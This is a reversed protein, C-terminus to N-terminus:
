ACANDRLRKDCLYQLGRSRASGKGAKGVESCNLKEQKRIEFSLYEHMRSQVSCSMESEKGLCGWSLSDRCKNGEELM